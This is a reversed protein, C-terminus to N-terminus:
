QTPGGVQTLRAAVIGIQGNTNTVPGEGLTGRNYIQVCLNLGGAFSPLSVSPCQGLVALEQSGNASMSGAGIWGNPSQGHGIGFGEWLGSATNIVMAVYQPNIKNENAPWSWAAGGFMLSFGGQPGATGTATPIMWQQVQTTTLQNYNLWRAAFFRRTGDGLCSDVGIDIATPRDSTAEVASYALWFEALYRGGLANFDFNSSRKIAMATLGSIRSTRVVICPLGGFQTRSVTGQINGAAVGPTASPTMLQTWGRSGKSFDNDDVLLQPIYGNSWLGSWRTTPLNFPGPPNNATGPLLPNGENM